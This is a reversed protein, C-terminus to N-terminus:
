GLMEAFRANAYLIRDTRDIRVVGELSLNQLHRFQQTDTGEFIELSM